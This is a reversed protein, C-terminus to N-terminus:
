LKQLILGKLYESEPFNLAIPHDIDQHLHELIQVDVGADLAAGAVIKQFLDASVGGSCSFTALIGGPKLLKFAFLNIDKYGRAAREVQATTPAFKPPDLIITDFSRGQDRLVRLIQFVDGQVWRVEGDPFQNSLLNQKALQLVTESADIATVSRAGGALANLLFGGTYCFCDLIDRNKVYKRIRLRNARQDLYFGTKQGSRYDISFRLGHESIQILEPLAQGIVWGYRLPLGELERVDADSREFIPKNPCLRSLNEIITDKWYEGGSSLFQVVLLSDYEDIVLGPLGDSEGFVLRVANTIAPDLRSRRMSIAQDLRKWFFEGDINEEPNFSWVRVRIQSNASFAGWALIEGSESIVSVTEGNNPSGQVTQIAGSFVWPHRRRLSKDRGPKLRVSIM